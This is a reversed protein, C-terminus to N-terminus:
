REMKIHLPNPTLNKTAGTAADIGIGLLGGVLVNGAMGAAGAGSIKNTVRVQSTKYGKKSATVLYEGKRKLKFTAPSQTTLVKKGNREGVISSNNKIESKTLFRDAREVSVVANPQDTTVMITDNTGRTVSACSSLLLISIAVFTAPFWKMFQSLNKM